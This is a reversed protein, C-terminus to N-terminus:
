AEAGTIAKGVKQFFLMGQTPESAEDLLVAFHGPAVKILGPLVSGSKRGQLCFVGSEHHLACSSSSIDIIQLALQSHM